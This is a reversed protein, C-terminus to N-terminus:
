DVKVNPYNMKTVEQLNKLDKSRLVMGALSEAEYRWADNELEAIRKKLPDILGAFYNDVSTKAELLTCNWREKYAKIVQLRDLEPPLIDKIIDELDSM